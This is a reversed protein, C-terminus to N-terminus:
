RFYFRKKEKKSDDDSDSFTIEDMMKDLIEMKKSHSIAEEDKMLIDENSHKEEM